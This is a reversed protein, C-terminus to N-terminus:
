DGHLRLQGHRRLGREAYLDVRRRASLHNREGTDHRVGAHRHRHRRHMPESRVPAVHRPTRLRRSGPLDAGRCRKGAVRACRRACGVHVVSRSDLDVAPAQHVRSHERRWVCSRRGPRFSHERGGVTVRDYAREGYRRQPIGAGPPIVPRAARTPAKDGRKSAYGATPAPGLATSSEDPSGCVPALARM